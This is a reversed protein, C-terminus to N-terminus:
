SLSRLGELVHQLAMWDDKVYQRDKAQGWLRHLLAHANDWTPAPLTTMMDVDGRGGSRLELEFREYDVRESTTFRRRNGNGDTCAPNGCQRRRTVKDDEIAGRSRVISSESAGCYPCAMKLGAKFARPRRREPIGIPPGINRVRPGTISPQQHQAEDVVGAQHEM